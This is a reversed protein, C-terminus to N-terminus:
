SPSHSTLVRPQQCGVPTSLWAVDSGWRIKAVISTTSLEGPITIAMALAIPVPWPDRSIM